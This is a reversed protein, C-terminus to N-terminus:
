FCKSVELNRLTNIKGLLIPCGVNRHLVAVYFPRDFKLKPLSIKVEDENGSPLLSMDKVAGPLMGEESFGFSSIQTVSGLGADLGSAVLMGSVDVRFDEEFRPINVLPMCGTREADLIEMIADYEEEPTFEVGEAPLLFAIRSTGESLPSVYEFRDTRAYSAEFFHPRALSIETVTGDANHFDATEDRIFHVEKTWYTSVPVASLVALGDPLSVGALRDSFVGRTWKYVWSEMRELTKGSAPDAAYVGAGYVSALTEAVADHIDVNGGIWLSNAISLYERSRVYDLARAVGGWYSNVAELSADEGALAEILEARSDDDIVNAMMAATVCAAAPSVLFNEGERDSRACFFRVAIERGRRDLEAYEGKRDLSLLRTGDDPYERLPIVDAGCTCADELEGCGCSCMAPGNDCGALGSMLICSLLYAKLRM